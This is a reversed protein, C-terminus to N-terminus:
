YGVTGTLGNSVAVGAQAYLVLAQAYFELGLLISFSPIAVSHDAYGTTTITYFSGDLAVLQDCGPWGLVGLDQPLPYLGFAGSAQTNSFGFVFLPITVVLPLGSVRLHFTSGFRPVDGSIAGLVPSQGNPGLCGSG